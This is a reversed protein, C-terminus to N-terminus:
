SSKHDERAPVAPVMGALRATTGWTFVPLAQRRKFYARPLAEAEAYDAAMRDLIARAMKQHAHGLTLLASLGPSPPKGGGPKKAHKTM